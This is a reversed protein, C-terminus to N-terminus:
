PRECRYYRYGGEERQLRFGAKELVHASRANASLCDAEVARLGLTAFAYELALREAATGFGRGKVADNQLHISLTCVGRAQDIRKLQIEGIPHEGLLIALIVRDFSQRATFRSEAEAHDYHYPVFPQGPACVAPDNEWGCYLEHWLARTM